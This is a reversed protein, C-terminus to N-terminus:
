IHSLCGALFVEDERGGVVGVLNGLTSSMEVRKREGQLPPGRASIQSQPRGGQLSSKM